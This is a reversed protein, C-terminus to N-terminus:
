DPYNYAVQLFLLPLFCNGECRPKHHKRCMAQLYIIQALYTETLDLLTPHWTFNGNNKIRANLGLVYFSTQCKYSLNFIWYLKGGIIPIGTALIVGIILNIIWMENYLNVLCIDCNMILTLPIYKYKIM